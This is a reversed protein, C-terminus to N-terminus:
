AGVCDGNEEKEEETKGSAVAAAGNLKQWRGLVKVMEAFRAETGGVGQSGM